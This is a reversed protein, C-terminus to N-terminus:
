SLPMSAIKAAECTVKGKVPGNSEGTATATKGADLENLMLAASAVHKQAADKAIGTIIYTRKEKTTNTVTAAMQVGKDTSVCKTFVVKADNAGDVAGSSSAGGAPTTAGGTATPAASTGSASGSPAADTAPTPTAGGGCGALALAVAASVFVASLASVASLPSRKM